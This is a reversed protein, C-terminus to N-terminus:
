YYLYQINLQKTREWCQFHGIINKELLKNNFKSTFLLTDTNKFYMGNIKKQNTIYLVNILGKKYKNIKGYNECTTFSINKKSLLNIIYKEKEISHIAYSKNNDIQSLFENLFSFKTKLQKPKNENIIYFSDTKLQKRCYPCDIHSSSCITRSICHLCFINNCCKTILISSKNNKNLEYCISCSQNDFDDFKHKIELLRNQLCSNKYKYNNIKNFQNDNILNTIKNEIFAILLEKNCFSKCNLENIINEYNKESLYKKINKKITELFELSINEKQQYCKTYKKIPKPIDISSYIYNTKNKLIIHQLFQFNEICLNYFCNKIFGSQKIGLTKIKEMGIITRNNIQRVTKDYFHGLPFILNEASSSIFWHFLSNLYVNSHNAIHLYDANDYFIRSFTYKQIDQYYKFIFENYLKDVILLINCNNYNHLSQKMHYSKSIIHFTLNTFKLYKKWKSLLHSQIIIVNTQLYFSDTAYKTIEILFNNTKPYITNDLYKKYAILGLCTMPKGTGSIDALVGMHSKIYYLNSKNEGILKKQYISKELEHMYFISTKQHEKLKILINSLNCTIKNSNEDLMGNKILQFKQYIRQNYFDM